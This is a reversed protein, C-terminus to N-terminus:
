KGFQKLIVVTTFLRKMIKDSLCQIMITYHNTYIHMKPKASFNNNNIFFYYYLYLYDILIVEGIISMVNFDDHSTFEKLVSAILGEKKFKLINSSLIFMYSFKHLWPVM